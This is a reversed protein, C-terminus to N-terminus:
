LDNTNPYLYLPFLTPGGRRFMNVDSIKNSIFICDFYDLNAAQSQVVAILGLNDGYLMHRMVNQRGRDILSTEYYISQNDFPRYTVTKILTADFEKLRRVKAVEFDANDKLELESIIGDDNISLDYFSQIRKILSEKDIDIVFHDRHTKIGSSNLPFLDKTSFGQQYIKEVAADKQIFLYEPSKYQIEQWNLKAISGDNLASYKAERKGYFSHHFVKALSDKAKKGTKIFLNISVGQM